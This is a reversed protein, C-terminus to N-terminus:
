QVCPFFTEASQKQAHLYYQDHQSNLILRDESMATEYTGALIWHGEILEINNRCDESLHKEPNYADLELYHTIADDVTISAGFFNLRQAYETDEHRKLPMMYGYKDIIERKAIFSSHGSCSKDGNILFIKKTNMDIRAYKTDIRIPLSEELLMKLIAKISRVPHITDGPDLFSFFETRILSMGTNRCQGIGGNRERFVVSVELELRYECALSRAIALDEETGDVVIIAQSVVGMQSAISELSRRLRLHTIQHCCLVYTIEPIGTWNLSRAKKSLELTKAVIKPSLYHCTKEYDGYFSRFRDIKKQNEHQERGYLQDFSLTLMMAYRLVEQWSPIKAPFDFGTNDSNM